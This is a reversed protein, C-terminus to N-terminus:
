EGSRVPLNRREATRSLQHAFTALAAPKHSIATWLVWCGPMNLGTTARVEALEAAADAPLELAAVGLRDLAQQAQRARGARTRGVLVEAVTLTNAM